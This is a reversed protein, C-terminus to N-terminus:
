DECALLRNRLNILKRAKERFAIRETHSTHELNAMDELADVRQQLTEELLTAEELTHIPLDIKIGM